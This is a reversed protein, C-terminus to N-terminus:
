IISEHEDEEHNDYLDGSPLMQLDGLVTMAYENQQNRRRRVLCSFVKYIVYLALLAVIGWILMWLPDIQDTLQHFKAPLSTSNSDNQTSTENSVLGVDSELMRTVKLESRTDQLESSVVSILSVDGRYFISATSNM